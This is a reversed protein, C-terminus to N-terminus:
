FRRKNPFFCFVNQVTDTILKQIEEDYYFGIYIPLVTEEGNHVINENKDFLFITSEDQPNILHYMRLTIGNNYRESYLMEKSYEYVEGKNVIEIRIRELHSLFLIPSQLNEVREVIDKYAKQPEEFPFVFLTEGDKRKPHDNGLLEPVIYDVIKFRFTDDYIEPMKTYQFVAKFGVGFKGIKNQANEKSSNGIGTIANIDGPTDSDDSSIDFHKSGNHKFLMEKTSIIIEVDTADADDANQLLEYIFHATEPYKDIIGTWVGRYDKKNFTKIDELRSLHLANFLEAQIKTLEKM